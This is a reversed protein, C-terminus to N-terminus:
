FSVYFVDPSCGFNIKNIDIHGVSLTKAKWNSLKSTVKRIVIDWLDVRSMNGRVMLGLYTFRAKSSVCGISGAVDEVISYQVGFGMLNSKHVNIKLGSAFFCFM